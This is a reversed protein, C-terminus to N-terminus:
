FGADYLDQIQELLVEDTHAAKGLWWRVDSSFVRDPDVYDAELKKAFASRKPVSPAKLAAGPLPATVAVGTSAAGAPITATTLPSAVALSLGAALLGAFRSTASTTRIKM